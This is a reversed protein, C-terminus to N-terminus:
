VTTPGGSPNQPDHGERDPEDLREREEAAEDKEDPPPKDGPDSMVDWGPIGPDQALGEDPTEPRDASM